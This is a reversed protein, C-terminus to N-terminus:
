AADDGQSGRDTDIAEIRALLRAARPNTRAAKGLLRRAKAQEAALAKRHRESTNEAAEADGALRLLHETAEGVISALRPLLTPDHRVGEKHLRALARRFRMNAADLEPRGPYSRGRDPTDTM